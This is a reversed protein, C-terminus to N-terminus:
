PNCGKRNYGQSITGAASYPGGLASTFGLFCTQSSGADWATWYNLNPFITKGLRVWLPTFNQNGIRRTEADNWYTDNQGPPLVANGLWLVNNKFITPATANARAAAGPKIPSGVTNGLGQAFSTLSPALPAMTDAQALVPTVTVAAATALAAVGLQFKKTATTM